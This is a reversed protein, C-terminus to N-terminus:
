FISKTNRMSEVQLTVQKLLPNSLRMTGSLKQMAGGTGASIGYQKYKLGCGANKGYLGEYFAVTNMNNQTYVQLPNAQKDKTM